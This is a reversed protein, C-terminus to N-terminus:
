NETLWEDRQLSHQLIEYYIQGARSLKQYDVRKPLEALTARTHELWKARAKPTLDELQADFRHDGLETAQMPRLSFAQDLYGKFFIELKPDESQASVKGAMGLILCLSLGRFILKRM